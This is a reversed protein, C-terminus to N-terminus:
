LVTGELEAKISEDDLEIIECYFTAIENVMEDGCTAIISSVAGAISPANFLAKLDISDVGFVERLKAVLTTALVSDGGSAFLNLNIDDTKSGITESWISAVAKETTTTPLVAEQEPALTENNSTEAQIRESPLNDSLCQSWTDAKNALALVSTHFFEFMADLVGDIFMDERCDWNLLLGGDLETIQTDLLVQPGQSIIWIPDGFVDRVVPEFLEGLNLASTFVIPATVQHGKLRGIDRLVQVGNYDAYSADEHLQSQITKARDLFTEVESLNVELMISSSFDGVVGSLDPGDIPRLFLPVNILFHSNSSWGALTEALVTALVTAPTLNHERCVQYLQDRLTSDFYFHRRTTHPQTNKTEFLSTKLPLKPGEPMQHLRNNWWEGSRKKVDSYNQEINHRCDSFSMPLEALEIEPNQYLMALERLLVRYSVADAAVMDVDLHLRSGGNPLQSLAIALVEGNEIDLMQSSLLQRTNELTQEITTADKERLDNIVLPIPTSNESLKHIQQGDRTVILRLSSHREALKNLAKELTEPVIQNDSEFETYLHASVGGLPQEPNRGLWYAQQMPALPFAKETPTSAIKQTAQPASAHEPHKANALINVWDNVCPKSSLATFNVLYGQARWHAVIGMLTISDLGLAYLNDNPSISDANVNIKQALLATIEHLITQSDSM